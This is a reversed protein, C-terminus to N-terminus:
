LSTATALPYATAVWALTRGAVFAPTIRFALAPGVWSTATAVWSTATAVSSPRVAAAWSAAVAALSAVVAALELHEFRRVVSSKDATSPQLVAAAM